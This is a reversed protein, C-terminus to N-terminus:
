AAPAAGGGDPLVKAYRVTDVAYGAREYLLRARANGGFVNLTLFRYGREVGWAEAAQLLARGVGHGEGAESVVLIAVHGHREQTFYDTATELYLVGAPGAGDREAVFLASGEPLADLARELAEREARDVAEPPRLPPPGFARLRPVLSVIFDRDAPRAARVTIPM